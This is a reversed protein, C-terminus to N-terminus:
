EFDVKKISDLSILVEKQFKDLILLSSENVKRITGSYFIPENGFICIISIRRGEMGEFEEKNM